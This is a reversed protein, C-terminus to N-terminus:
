SSMMLLYSVSILIALFNIKNGRIEIIFQIRPHISNFKELISSITNPSIVMLIDDAYRYYFLIPFDFTELVESKLDQMVIDAIVSSLPSSMPTGFNQKYIQNDFIFFKSNLVLRVARLFEDESIGPSSDGNRLYM